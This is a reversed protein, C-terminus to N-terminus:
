DYIAQFVDYIRGPRRSSEVDSEIDNENRLREIRAHLGAKERAITATLVDITTAGSQDAKNAM